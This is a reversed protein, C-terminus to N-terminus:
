SVPGQAAYELHMRRVSVFGGQMDLQYELRIWGKDPGISTQVQTPYVAIPMDGYPTHYSGEYRKGKELVMLMGYPGRRLLTVRGGKVQVKVDHTIQTHDSEDELTEEYHLLWADARKELTGPMMLQMAEELRGNEGRAASTQTLLIPTPSADM